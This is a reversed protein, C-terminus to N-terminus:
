LDEKLKRSNLHAISIYVAEAVFHPKFCYYSSQGLDFSAAPMHFANGAANWPDDM